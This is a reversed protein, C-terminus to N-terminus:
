PRVSFSLPPPRINLFIYDKQSIRLLHGFFPPPSPSDGGGERHMNVLESHGTSASGMGYTHRFPKSTQNNAHRFQPPATPARGGQQM